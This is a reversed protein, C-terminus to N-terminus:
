FREPDDIAAKVTLAVVAGVCPMTALTRCVPDTRAHDRLLRAALILNTAAELSPNGETLEQVRAEVRGKAVRGIKLGFNRLM